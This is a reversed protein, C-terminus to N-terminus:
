MFTTCVSTYLYVQLGTKVVVTCSTHDSPRVKTQVHLVGCSKVSAQRRPDATTQMLSRISGPTLSDNSM